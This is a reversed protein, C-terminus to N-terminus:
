CVSVVGGTDTGAGFFKQWGKSRSNRKVSLGYISTVSALWCPSICHVLEGFM